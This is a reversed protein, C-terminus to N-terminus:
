IFTYNLKIFLCLLHGTTEPLTISIVTLCVPSVGPQSVTHSSNDAAAAHGAQGAGGKYLSVTEGSQQMQLIVPWM